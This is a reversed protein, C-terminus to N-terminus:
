YNDRLPPTPAANDDHPVEPPRPTPEASPIGVSHNNAINDDLLSPYNTVQKHGAPCRDEENVQFVLDVALHFRGREGDLGEGYELRHAVEQPNSLLWEESPDVMLVASRWATGNGFADSEETHVIYCANIAAIRHHRLSNLEGQESVGNRNADVWIMLHKDYIAGDWPGVYHDRVNDSRCDKGAFAQLAYFGNAYTRGGVQMNDGFMETSSTVVGDDGPAVLFGDTAALRVDMTIRPDANAGKNFDIYDGGLWASRHAQGYENVDDLAAMNFYTGWRLSSTKIGDGGLDIAIPTYQSSLLTGDVDHSLINNILQVAGQVPSFEYGNAEAPLSLNKTVDYYHKHVKCINLINSISSDIELGRLTDEQLRVVDHQLQESRLDAMYLKIIQPEGNDLSPIEDFLRNAYEGAFAQDPACRGVQCFGYHMYHIMHKLFNKKEQTGKKHKVLDASLELDRDTVEIWDYKHRSVTLAEPSVRITSFFCREGTRYQRAVESNDVTYYAHRNGHKSSKKGGV